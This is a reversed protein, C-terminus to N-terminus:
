NALQYCVQEIVVTSKGLYDICRFRQGDGNVRYFIVADRSVEDSGSASQLNMKQLQGSSQALDPIQGWPDAFAASKDIDITVVSM